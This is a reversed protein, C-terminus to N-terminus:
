AFGQFSKSCARRIEFSLTCVRGHGSYVPGTVNAARTKLWADKSPHVLACLVCFTDKVIGDGVSIKNTKALPRRTKM